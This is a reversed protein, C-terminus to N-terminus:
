RLSEKEKRSWAMHGKTAIIIEGELVITAKTGQKSPKMRKNM